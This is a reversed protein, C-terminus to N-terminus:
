NVISLLHEEFNKLVSNKGLQTVAYERAVHNYSDRSIITQDAITSIANVLASLDESPILTAIGPYKRVLNGLETNMEATIISNGGASLISTLKSPLVADAAKKKQIVLHIDAMRLLNPLLEYPQLPFFLINDLQEKKVM